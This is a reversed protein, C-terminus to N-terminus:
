RGFGEDSQLLTVTIATVDLGRLQQGRRLGGHHQESGASSRGQLQLSASSDTGDILTLTRDGVGHQWCSNV